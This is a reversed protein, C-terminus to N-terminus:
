LDVIGPHYVVNVISQVVEKIDIRNLLVYLALPILLYVPCNYHFTIYTMVIAAIFPVLHKMPFAFSLIALIDLKKGMKSRLLATCLLTYLANTILVCVYVWYYSVSLWKVAVLVIVTNFVLCVTSMVSLRREENQAILYTNIGFAAAYPLLSLAAYCLTVGTDEYNKMIICFYFFVPLALYVLCDVLTVYNLRISRIREENLASDKGSLRDILKPFIIFGFADILLVIANSLTGSFNYKGYEDVAYYASVILSSLYLILYFASNYMFLWFGKNTLAKIDQRSVLGSLHIEGGFMFVLLILSHGVLYSAVLYDLLNEKFLLVSLFLFFPIASQYLAVELLKNRVRYIAAFSKNFYVLVVIALIRLLYSDANYKAILPIDVIRCVLYLFGVCLSLALNVVIASKVHMDCVTMDNRDHVLTVNVSNSIGLDIINFFNIVLLVFSWIGFEVPGLKVAIILTTIFQLAYTIYRSSMYLFVKNKFVTKFLNM